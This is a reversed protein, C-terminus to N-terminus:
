FFEYMGRVLDINLTYWKYKVITLAEYYKYCEYVAM